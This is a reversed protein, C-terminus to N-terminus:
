LGKKKSARKRARSKVAEERKKKTEKIEKLHKREMIMLNDIEEKTLKEQQKEDKAPPVYSEFRPFKIRDKRKGNIDICVGCREFATRICDRKNQLLDEVSDGIMHTFLIRRQSATFTGTMWADSNANFHQTWRKQVGKKVIVGLNSDVTSCLDTCQPPSVVEKIQGYTDVKEIANLLSGYGDIQM